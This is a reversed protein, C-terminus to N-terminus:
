KHVQQIGKLVDAMGNRRILLLVEEALRNKKKTIYHRLDGGNCYDLFLYLNNPTQKLDHMCILNEHRAKLLIEIEKQLLQNYNAFKNYQASSMPIVKVAFHKTHTKDNKDM